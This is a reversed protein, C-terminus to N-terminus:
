FRRAFTVFWDSRFRAWRWLIWDVNLCKGLDEVWKAALVMLWGTMVGAENFWNKDPEIDVEVARM